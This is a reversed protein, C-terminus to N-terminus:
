RGLTQKLFKQEQPGSLDWFVVACAAPPFPPRAHVSSAAAPLHQAPDAPGCVPMRWAPPFASAPASLFPLLISPLCVGLFAPRGPLRRRGDRGAEWGPGGTGFEFTFIDGSTEGSRRVYRSYLM